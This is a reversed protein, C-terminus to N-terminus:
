WIQSSVGNAWLLFPSSVATFSITYSLIPNHSSWPRSIDTRTHTHKSNLRAAHLWCPILASFYWLSIHTSHTHVEYWLKNEKDCLWPTRSCVFMLNVKIPQTHVGWQLSRFYALGDLVCQRTPLWHPCAAERHIVAIVMVAPWLLCLWHCIHVTYVCMLFIGLSESRELKEWICNQLKTSSSPESYHVSYYYGLVFNVAFPDFM